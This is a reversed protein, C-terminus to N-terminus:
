GRGSAAPQLCTATRAPTDPAARRWTLSARAILPARGGARRRPEARCSAAAARGAGFDRRAPFRARNERTCPIHLSNAPFKACPIPAGRLSNGPAGGFQRAARFHSQIPGSFFLSFAVRRAFRDVRQTASAPRLIRKASLLWIVALYCGALLSGAAARGPVFLWNGARFGRRPARDPCNTPAVPPRKLSVIKVRSAAPHTLTADLHQTFNARSHPKRRLRRAAALAALRTASRRRSNGLLLRM